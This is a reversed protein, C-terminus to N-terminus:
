LLRHEMFQKMAIREYLCTEKGALGGTDNTKLVLCEIAQYGHGGVIYTRSIVLCILLTGEDM